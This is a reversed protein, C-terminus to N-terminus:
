LFLKRREHLPAGKQFESGGSKKELVNMIQKTVQNGQKNDNYLDITYKM